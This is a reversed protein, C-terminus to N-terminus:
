TKKSLLKGTLQYREGTHSCVVEGNGELPLDLQEGYESMWGIQKAPVGVMLAYAPVDKNIVAGAGVFAFEGITVGCVVTCNAGLTAGKKILTDLYQDKREILSRPNYVNTFVMSPGCFVGEELHVNDYVSVNNQIKCHDGITVKNGVFVNQGLSVGKGIQAGGCVHVFHWVRSDPGIQAGDDVIASEHQYFAM